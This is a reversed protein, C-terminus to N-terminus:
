KIVRIEKKVKEYFSIPLEVELYVDKERYEKKVVHGAEHLMSIVRAQSQPLTIKYLKIVKNLYLVIRDILGEFNKKEIASIPVANYFERAFREIENNEIKDIKNLVTIVPKESIELEKLVDYVAKEMEKAKPHSIDILHLLIDAHVAEELTAKFSEILHHPLENLFGVTDAFLIKQNNPLVYSRITPDLTSFLRDRTYVESGTLANLLTSKGSNTYGIIAITLLSFKARQKRRTARQLSLSELDRKLKTIREGIKRRDLELKQEGPGRTGIGGGLRSLLIGKGTLRPLLYLLQALEVQIKGENSRARRAFIDLILQTRDIVKVAIIDELNKQQTGTLDNNFIVVDINGQACIEAIEQVKGKGIFYVPSIKDRTVILEEEVAAGNSAALEALESAKEEPKWPTKKDKLNLTVLLAREM